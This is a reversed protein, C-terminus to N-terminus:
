ASKLGEFERKLQEAKSIHVKPVMFQFPETNKVFFTLIRCAFGMLVGKETEIREVRDIPIEGLAEKPRGFFGSMRFFIM